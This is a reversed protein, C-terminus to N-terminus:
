YFVEIDEQVWTVSGWIFERLWNGTGIVHPDKNLLSLSLGCVELVGICHTLLSYLGSNLSLCAKLPSIDCNLSYM